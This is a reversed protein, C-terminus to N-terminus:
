EPGFNSSFTQSSFWKARFDSSYNQSLESSGHNKESTLVVLLTLDQCFEWLLFDITPPRVETIGQQTQQANQLKPLLDRRYTM